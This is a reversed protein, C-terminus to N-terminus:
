TPLEFTELEPDEAKCWIYYSEFDYPCLRLTDWKDPLPFTGVPIQGTREDNLFFRAWGLPVTEDRIITVVGQDKSKSKFARTM